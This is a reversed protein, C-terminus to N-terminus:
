LVAGTGVIRGEDTIVHNREPEDILRFLDLTEEEPDHLFAGSVFRSLEPLDDPTALRMPLEDTM